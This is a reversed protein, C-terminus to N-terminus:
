SRAKDARASWSTNPPSNHRKTVSFVATVRDSAEEIQVPLGRLRGFRLLDARLKGLKSPRRATPTEGRKWQRLGSIVDHWTYAAGSNELQAIVEEYDLYSNLCLRAESRRVKNWKRRPSQSEIILLAGELDDKAVPRGRGLDRALDVLRKIFRLKSLDDQDAALFKAVARRTNDKTM